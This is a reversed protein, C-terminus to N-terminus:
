ATGGPVLHIATATVTGSTIFEPVELDVDAAPTTVDMELFISPASSALATVIAAKIADVYLRGPEGPLVVGGIPQEACFAEYAEEVLEELEAESLGSTDRVWLEYTLDQTVPTGNQVLPTVALPECSQHIADAVAGLDTAPDGVTGPVTGSATAVYVDVNGNGDAVTLVRTVGIATGDAARVASRAVFAYADRPGNPSLTGTKERCRQRLQADTEEDQGIAATSSVVVVGSLTTELTDIEDVSANSDTGLEVAQVPIEVGTELAGISFAATNRYTQGTTSSSFVLDDAAGAYVGGGTNDVTVTSTAFAGTSREVDYVYRAVLTLWDDEALELFGGKAIAAQLQSLAALVISVGTIITRVVAGPKWTTTKAGRGALTAYIAAEVEERTAPTTLEDLTAM